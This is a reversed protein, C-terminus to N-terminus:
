FRVHIGLVPKKSEFSMGIFPAVEIGSSQRPIYVPEWREEKTVVGAVYGLIGLIGGWIVTGIVAVTVSRRDAAIAAALLTGASFGILGYKKRKDTKGISRHLQLINEIEFSRLGGAGEVILDFGKENTSRVTGAITIGTLTKVRLREGVGINLAQAFAPSSFLLAVICTIAIFKQLFKM